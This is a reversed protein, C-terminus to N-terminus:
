SAVPKKRKWRRHSWLWYAPQERIVEELAKVHMETIEHPKNERPSESIMRLTVEYRARAVKRMSCFVVPQNMKQAIKEVGLFVPTDQNLFKTWYRNEGPPPTQDIILCLLAFEGQNHMRIFTRFAENMPVALAGFRERARNIFNEFRKNNLPKYIGLLKHRCLPAALSLLEWNGYHGTAIVVSKGEDYLRELLDINTFKVRSLVWNRSAHLLLIDEIFIDSFHTYYDKEISIIEDISKEPFSNLLNKRVIGRRYRVVRYAIFAFFDSITFIVVSPLKAM